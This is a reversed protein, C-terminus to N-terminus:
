PSPQFNTWFGISVTAPSSSFGALVPGSLVFLGAREPLGAPRPSAVGQWGSWRRTKKGDEEERIVRRTASGAGDAAALLDAWHRDRGRVEGRRGRMRSSAWAGRASRSPRTGGCGGGSRGTARRSARQREARLLTKRDPRTKDRDVAQRGLVTLGPSGGARRYWGLLGELGLEQLVVVANTWLGLGTTGQQRLRPAREFM